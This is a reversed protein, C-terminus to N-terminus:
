GTHVSSLQYLGCTQCTRTQTLDSPLKKAHQYTWRVHLPNCSRELVGILTHELNHIKMPTKRSNADIGVGHMCAYISATLLM